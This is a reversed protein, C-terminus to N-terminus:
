FQGRRPSELLGAQQLYTKAWAVRNDFIPHRGSPLLEMREENTLGLFAALTNGRKAFPINRDRAPLPFCPLMLSQYDPITM